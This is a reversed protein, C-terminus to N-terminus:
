TERNADEGKATKIRQTNGAIDRLAEPPKGLVISGENLSQSRAAAMSNPVGSSKGGGSL